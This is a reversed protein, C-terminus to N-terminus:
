ADGGNWEGDAGGDGGAIRHVQLGFGSFGAASPVDGTRIVSAAVMFFHGLGRLNALSIRGLHFDFFGSTAWAPYVIENETTQSQKILECVVHASGQIDGQNTVINLLIVRTEDCVLDCSGPYSWRSGTAYGPNGRSAM